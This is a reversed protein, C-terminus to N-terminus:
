GELLSRVRARYSKGTQLRTGDTLVIIWDGQFWPHFERIRETNVITSRHIRIFRDAPLRQELQSLTTRHEYVQKGAHIRVLDGAAEVWDFDLVRLYLLREGVKVALRDAGARGPSLTEMAAVLPSPDPAMNAAKVVRDIARNFRARNVPKLVYDLAHAEFAALAHQDFATVFITTPMRDAGIQRVVEFGDREPMQVDLLVLDPSEAIIHEVAANGDGCEGIVQLDGRAELLSRLHARALPEDDVILVRLATTSM